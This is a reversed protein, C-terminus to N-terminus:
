QTSFYLRTEDILNHNQRRDKISASITTSRATHRGPASIALNSLGESVTSAHLETEGLGIDDRAM